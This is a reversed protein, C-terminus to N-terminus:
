IILQKPIDKSIKTDPLLDVKKLNGNSEKVQSGNM